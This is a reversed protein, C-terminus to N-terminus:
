EKSKKKKKEKKDKKDSSKPTKPEEEVVEAKKAEAEKKAKKASKKASKQAAEDYDRPDAPIKFVPDINAQAATDAHYALVARRAILLKSSGADDKWNRVYYDHIIRSYSYGAAILDM